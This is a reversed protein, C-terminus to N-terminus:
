EIKGGVRVKHTSNCGVIRHVPCQTGSLIKLAWSRCTISLEHGLIRVLAELGETTTYLRSQLYAQNPGPEAAALDILNSYVARSLILASILVLCRGEPGTASPLNSRPACAGVGM